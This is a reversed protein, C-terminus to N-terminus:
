VSVPGAVRLDGRVFDAVAADFGRAYDGSPTSALTLFLVASGRTWGDSYIERRAAEYGEAYERDKNTMM